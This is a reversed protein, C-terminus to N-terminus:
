RPEADPQSLELVKGMDEFAAAMRPLDSTQYGHTIQVSSHGLIQAALRDPVGAAEMLTAAVMQGTEDNEYIYVQLHISRQAHNILRTLTSFYDRGGRVLKVKNHPIYASSKKNIGRLM